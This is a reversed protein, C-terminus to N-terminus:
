DVIMIIEKIILYKLAELLTDEAILDQSYWEFVDKIWPPIKNNNEFDPVNNPHNPSNELIKIQKDLQVAKEYEGLNVYTISKGRLANINDPHIILSHDYQELSKEYEKLYLYANGKGIIANVNVKNIDLVKDYQLVAEDFRKLGVNANAIGIMAEQNDPQLILISSRYLIEKDYDRKYSYVNALGNLADTNDPLIELSDIM